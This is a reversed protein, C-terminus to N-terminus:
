WYSGVIIKLINGLNRAHALESVYQHSTGHSIWIKEGGNQIGSMTDM